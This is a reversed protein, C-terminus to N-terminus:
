LGDGPEFLSPASETVEPVEESTEEAAPATQADLFRSFVVVPFLEAFVAEGAADTGTKVERAADLIDVLLQYEADDHPMAILTNSEPYTAKITKLHAQMEDLPYNKSSKKWSRALTALSAEDLSTSSATLDLSSKGLVLNVTVTTPTKPVDSANPTHTPLSAPVVSIHFFAAGMLLFPILVMFLNMVPILDLEPTEQVSRHFRDFM